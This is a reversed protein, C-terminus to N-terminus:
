ISHGLLTFINKTMKRRKKLKPGSKPGSKPVTTFFEFRLFTTGPLFIIVNINPDWFHAKGFNVNEPGWNLRLPRIFCLSFYIRSKHICYQWKILCFKMLDKKTTKNYGEYLVFYYIKCETNYWIIWFSGTYQQHLTMADVLCWWNSGSYYYVM